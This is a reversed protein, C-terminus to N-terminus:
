INENYEPFTKYYQDIIDSIELDCNYLRSQFDLTYEWIVDRYKSVNKALNSYEEISSNQWTLLTMYDKYGNKTAIDNLKSEIYSDFQPKLCEVFEERSTVNSTGEIESKFRLKGEVDYAVDEESFQITKGFWETNSPDTAYAKALKVNSVWEISGDNKRIYYKTSM